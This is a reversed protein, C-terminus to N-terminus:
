LSNLKSLLNCPSKQKVLTKLADFNRIDLQFHEINKFDLMEFHAPKTPIDLSVGIVNAGLQNLWATLWSGKFGTHGTILVKKGRFSDILKSSIM